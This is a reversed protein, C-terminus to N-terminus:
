KECFLIVRPAPYSDHVEVTAFHRRLATEFNERTYWDFHARYMKEVHKDEKPVFEVILHKKAFSSLVDALHEFTMRTRRFVLHHVLALCLVCDARLRETVSPFPMQKFGIAEAPAVANIYLPIVPTGLSVADRYMQDLAQEDMDIGVAQAGHIAALQSYLGRNCGIDLLTAPRLEALLRDVIAHKPTSAKIAELAALQGNYVPLENDGGYYNSWETRGPEVEMREIKRLTGQLEERTASPDGGRRLRKEVRHMVKSALFGGVDALQSWVRTLAPARGFKQSSSVVASVLDPDPYALIERLLTRAVTHHGKVMLQLAGGCYENFEQFAEWRGESPLKVISTFDVFCPRTFDFLVNWPHADQTCYGAAMLKINLKLITKAAEKFMTPTWEFPYTVFPLRPHELVLECGEIPVASREASILVGEAVLERMVPHAILEAYFATHAPRIARLLKDGHV